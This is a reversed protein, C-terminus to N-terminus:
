AAPRASYFARGAITVVEPLTATTAESAATM